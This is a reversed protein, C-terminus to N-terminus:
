INKNHHIRKTDSKEFELTTWTGEQPELTFLLKNDVRRPLVPHILNAPPVVRCKVLGIFKDNLIDEPTASARYRRFGVAYPDIANVTPYESTVDRYGIIQKGVCQHYKKIVKTRGGYFSDRTKITRLEADQELIKKNSM